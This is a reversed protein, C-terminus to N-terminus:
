YGRCSQYHSFARQTCLAYTRPDQYIARAFNCEEMDREYLADCEAEEAESMGRAALETVDDSMVGPTFEFPQANGLPTSYDGADGAFDEGIASNGAEADMPVNGGLMAAAAGVAGPLDWHSVSSSGRAGSSVGRAANRRAEQTAPDYPGSLIPEDSPLAASRYPEFTEVSALIGDSGPGASAPNGLPAYIGGGDPVIEVILREEEVAEKLLAELEANSKPRKRGDLMDCEELLWILRQATYEPYSWPCPGWDYDAYFESLFRDKDRERQQRNEEAAPTRQDLQLDDFYTWELYFCCREDVSFDIELDPWM